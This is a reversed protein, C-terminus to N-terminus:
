CQISIASVYVEMAEYMKMTKHNILVTVIYNTKVTLELNNLAHWESFLKTTPWKCSTM